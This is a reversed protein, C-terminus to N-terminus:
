FSSFFFLFGRAPTRNSFSAPPTPPTPLSPCGKISESQNFGGPNETPPPPDSKVDHHCLNFNTDTSKQGRWGTGWKVSCFLKVSTDAFAKWRELALGLGKLECVELDNCELELNPEWDMRIQRGQVLRSDTAMNMPAWRSFIMSRGLACAVCRTLAMRYILDGGMYLWLPGYVRTEVVM